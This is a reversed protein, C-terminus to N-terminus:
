IADVAEALDDLKSNEIIMTGTIEFHGVPQASADSMCDCSCDTKSIQKQLLLM